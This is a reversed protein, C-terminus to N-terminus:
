PLRQVFSGLWLRLSIGQPGEIYTCRVKELKKNDTPNRVKFLGM